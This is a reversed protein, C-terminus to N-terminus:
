PNAPTGNAELAETASLWREECTELEARYNAAATILADLESAPLASYTETDALRAEIDALRTAAATM